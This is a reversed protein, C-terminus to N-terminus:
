PTPGWSPVIAYTESDPGTQLPTKATGDPNMTDISVTTFDATYSTFAIKDGQPSWSPNINHTPPQTLQTLNSGDPHVTYIQSPVTGCCDSVFALTSGDPSWDPEWGELGITPAIAQIGSGDANMLYIADTEGDRNLSWFAITHGDPSYVGNLDLVGQKPDFRTLPTLKRGDTTITWLSCAKFNPLCRSFLVRKGDPSFSPLIDALKPEGLLAHQDTGDANILYLADNLQYVITRGDPSWAQPGAQGQAASYFTLQQVDTGDPNMTFLNGTGDGARGSDFVIRGNTGPFTARAPSDMAALTVVMAAMSGALWLLVRRTANKRM